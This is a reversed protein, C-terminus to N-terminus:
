IHTGLRIPYCCALHYQSYLCTFILSLRVTEWEVFEEPTTPERAKDNDAIAPVTQEEEEEVKAEEVNTDSEESLETLESISSNADSRAPSPARRRGKGKGISNDDELWEDPIAQWEEDQSGRLRASLRTGLPRVSAAAAASSTSARTLRSGSAHAPSPAVDFSPAGRSKRVLLGAQRNLEALEKAQADLKINAQDKAARGQRGSATTPTAPKVPSKGNKTKPQLRPRKAPSSLKAPSQNSGATRKRKLSNKPPPRPPKPPVRQIWLRDVLTSYIHNARSNFM